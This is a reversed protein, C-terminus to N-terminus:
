RQAIEELGRPLKRPMERSDTNKGGDRSQGCRKLGVEGNDLTCLGCFKGLRL